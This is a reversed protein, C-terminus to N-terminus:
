PLFSRDTEIEYEFYLIKFSFLQQITALAFRVKRGAKASPRGRDVGTDLCEVKNAQNPNNFDM